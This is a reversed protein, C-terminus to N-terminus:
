SVVPRRDEIWKMVDERLWVYRRFPMNLRPPLLEPKQHAYAKVTNKSLCLLDALETSDMTIKM